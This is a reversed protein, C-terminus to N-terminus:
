QRSLMEELGVSRTQSAALLTQLSSLSLTDDNTLNDSMQASGTDDSFFKERIEAAAPDTKVVAAWNGNFWHPMVLADAMNAYQYLEVLAHEFDEIGVYAEVRVKRAADGAVGQLLLLASEPRFAKLNANAAMLTAHRENRQLAPRLIEIASDPLGVLVLKAAIENRLGDAEAGDPIFEVYAHVIEAFSHELKDSVSLTSLIDEATERLIEANFPDRLIEEILLEVADAEKGQKALWLGELRRLEGGKQTGRWVKAGAGLDRLLHPPPPQDRALGLTALAILADTAVLSNDSALTLYTQSAEDTSGEIQMLNGAVLEHDAGHGGPARELIDSIQRATAELGRDLFASTLRPGVLRRIDSPLEAFAEIITPKNGIDMDVAPYTGVLAWLGAVGDCDIAQSLPGGTQVSKGDVIAALDLMLPQYAINQGAELLYSGAEAGFGYRLYTRVLQEIKEFDPKDFERLVNQRANALEDSFEKGSGWSAVDLTEPSPCHNTIREVVGRAALADRTSASQILIQNGDEPEEVIDPPAAVEVEHVPEASQLLEPIPGTLDLLGQDAALTLQQLLSNRSADVAAQMEQDYERAAEIAEPKTVQIVDTQSVSPAIGSVQPSTLGAGDMEIPFNVSYPSSVYYPARPPMWQVYEPQKYSGDPLTAGGLEPTLHRAISAAVSPEPPDAIDVVIYEDQYPYAGVECDCGLVMEYETTEDGQESRTSVLRTKPIRAFVREDEFELNQDPFVLTASNDGIVLSWERESSITFVLRTYGEHEGSVVAVAQAFTPASLMFMFLFPEFHKM